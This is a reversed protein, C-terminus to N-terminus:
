AATCRRAGDGDQGEPGPPLFFDVFSCIELQVLRAKVADPVPRDGAEIRFYVTKSLGLVRAAARGSWGKAERWWRLKQGALTGRATAPPINTKTPM